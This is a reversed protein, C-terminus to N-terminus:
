SNCPCPRKTTRYEPVSGNSRTIISLSSAFRLSRKISSISVTIRSTSPQFWRGARSEAKVGRRDNGLSTYSVSTSDLNRWACDRDLALLFDYFSAQCGQDRYRYNASTGLSLNTAPHVRQFSRWAFQPPNKSTLRAPALAIARLM